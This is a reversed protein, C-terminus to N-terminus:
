GRFVLFTALANIGKGAMIYILIEKSFLGLGFLGLLVMITTTETIRKVKKNIKASDHDMKMQAMGIATIPYTKM